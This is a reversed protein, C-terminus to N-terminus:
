IGTWSHNGVCPTAGLAFQPRLTRWSWGPSKHLEGKPREMPITAALAREWFQTERVYTVNVKSIISTPKIIYM